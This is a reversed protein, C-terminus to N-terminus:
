GLRINVLLELLRGDSHLVSYSEVLSSVLHQICLVENEEHRIFPCLLSSTNCYELSSLSVLSLCELKNPGNTLQSSFLTNHMCDKTKVVFLLNPCFHPIKRVM